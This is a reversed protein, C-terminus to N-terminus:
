TITIVLFLTVFYNLYEQLETLIAAKAMIIIDTSLPTKYYPVSCHLVSPM